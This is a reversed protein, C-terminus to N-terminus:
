RGIVFGFENGLAVESEISFEFDGIFRKLAAMEHKEINERRTMSERCATILMKDAPFGGLVSIATDDDERPRPRRARYLAPILKLALAVDYKERGTFRALEDPGSNIDWHFAILNGIRHKKAYIRVLEVARVDRDAAVYISLTGYSEPPILLPNFGCGIDAVANGERVLSTFEEVFRRRVPLRERTSVHHSLIRDVIELTRPGDDESLAMSALADLDAGPRKYRRLSMYARARMNKRFAKYDRSRTIEKMSAAAAVRARFASNKPSVYEDALIGYVGDPAMKYTLASEEALATLLGDELDSLDGAKGATGANIPSTKASPAADPTEIPKASLFREWSVGLRSDRFVEGNSTHVDYIHGVYGDLEEADMQSLKRTLELLVFLNHRKLLNENVKKDFLDQVGARRCVPCECSVGLKELSSRKNVAGYITMYYGQGAYHAYSSSDFVNAGAYFMFAIDLPDGAGYVHMPVNRGIVDRADRIVGCTFALDHNKNFFPVMSGIGYYRFGIRALQRIHKQRLSFYGGGQQIAAMDSYVCEPLSDEIRNQSLTMRSLADEYNTEPPTLLDLPAAVDTKIADQFRVIEVADLDVERGGLQQFAGSDTCIMGEFGGIHERLTLGREFMKRLGADRFLLFSNVM